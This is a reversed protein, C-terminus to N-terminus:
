KELWFVAVHDGVYFEEKEKTGTTCCTSQLTQASLGRLVYGLGALSLTKPSRTDLFNLNEAYEEPPLSKSNRTLRFVAAPPKLYSCTIRAYKVEKRMREQKQKYSLASNKMYLAIEEPNTSPGPVVQEKLFELLEYRESEKKLNLFEHEYGEEEHRQLKENWKMKLEQIKMALKKFDKIKIGAEIVNEVYDMVKSMVLKRSVSELHEKGRFNLEFNVEGVSKEEKLNHIPAKELKLRKAGKVASIKCIDGTDEAAHPGFGFIAGRQTSFGKALKPLIITLLSTIESNYHSACEFISALISPKPLSDEHFDKSTFSLVQNSTILEEPSVKTLNDYLEPFAKTLTEYTTGEDFIMQMFPGTVHIGILSRACFIPKLLEM